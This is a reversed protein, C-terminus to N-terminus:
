AMSKEPTQSVRLTHSSKASSMHTSELSSKSFSETKRGNFGVALYVYLDNLGVYRKHGSSPGCLVIPRLRNSQLIDVARIKAYRKAHRKVLTNHELAAVVSEPPSLKNVAAVKEEPKIPYGDLVTLIPLMHLLRLRYATLGEELVPVLPNKDLRLHSLQKLADLAIIEDM